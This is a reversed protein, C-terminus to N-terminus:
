VHSFSASASGEATWSCDGDSGSAPCTAPMPRPTARLVRIGPRVWKRGFKRLKLLENKLNVIKFILGSVSDLKEGVKKLNDMPDTSAASERSPNVM